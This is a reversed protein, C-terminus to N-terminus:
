HSTKSGGKPSMPITADNGNGGRNYYYPVQGPIFQEAIPITQEVPQNSAAFPLIVNVNVKITLYIRIYTNNIGTVIAKSKADVNVNGLVDLRVPIRPSLNTLLANESAQGLPIEAVIGQKTKKHILKGNQISVKGDEAMRLFTQVRDTVEAKLRNIEATNYSVNTVEHKDDYQIIFLKKPDIISKIQDNGELNNSPNGVGYNIAYTEIQNAENKAIEILTPTVQRNIFWFGGMTFIIFMVMTLVFAHRLAITRRRRMPKFM